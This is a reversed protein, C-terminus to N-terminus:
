DIETWAAILAGPGVHVGIISDTLNIFSVEFNEQRLMEKLKQAGQPNDCHTIVVRINKNEKRLKKTGSLIKKFIAESMEKEGTSFGIKEIKGNKIGLLPSIRIKQLRRLWQAQSHSIRGGWELWKPDQPM